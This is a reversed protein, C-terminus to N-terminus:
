GLRNKVATYVDEHIAEISRPAGNESCQIRHWDYKDALELYVKHCRHLYSTDREHIDKEKGKARSTILKDSVAPDMDLFIVMDPVPLGLKVFEFDWLWDLFSKRKDGDELKVAQHVMNSTTYRDALILTGNDYAEKWNMRYSAFRDVAYFTSAAFANVDEPRNGFDGALYMRVLASSDSEYDPFSIKKVSKGDAILHDYLAKTQTAKGSGDGAEIIILRGKENIEKM